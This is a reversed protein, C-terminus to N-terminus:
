SAPRAPERPASKEPRDPHSVRPLLNIFDFPKVSPTEGSHCTACVGQTIHTLGLMGALVTDRMVYPPAYRRGPGHCSECQVGSLEPADSTPVM